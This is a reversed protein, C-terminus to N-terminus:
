RLLKWEGDEFLYIFSVFDKVENIYEETDVFRNIELDEGKDRHYAITVKQEPTAYSHNNGSPFAKEKLVSISGLSILERAKITSNYFKKLLAQTYQPYGDFNCYIADISDDENKIGIYCSTGM